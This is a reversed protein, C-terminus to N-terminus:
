LLGRLEALLQLAEMPTTENPDAERLRTRLPDNRVSSVFLGLQEDSHAPEPPATAPDFTGGELGRLIVRARSLVTKPLGALRAVHIGYSRDASGAVIQHLFVVDDGRDEVAVNRNRVGPKTEAMGTLEHYHTAFLSRARIKDHLYEAIAWALSVGDYTSTGRGVEDLIVLSRDTAHRLINATETMEVMFTSLGQALEDGSGVRAFIRDVVGVEASAAPVFSGTQALLALLAAQRIYTSKGAMNPGTILHLTGADGGIIIDNPVFPEHGQQLDLVPHRGQVIRLTAGTTVTPRVYGPGRALTALSGIVDLEAAAAASALISAGADAVEERLEAFLRAELAEMRDRSTLIESELEKLEPTLFREANKLTQKRIYNDPVKGRHAQTVELYYGFVKNYGVKLSPIGTRKIEREQFRALTETADRTTARLADLEESWGTAFLEGAKPALAPREV